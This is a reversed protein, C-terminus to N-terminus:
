EKNPIIKNQIFVLLEENSEKQFNASLQCIFICNQLYISSESFSRRAQKKTLNAVADNSLNSVTKRKLVILDQEMTFESRCKGHYFLQPIENAIMSQALDFIPARNRINASNPLTNWSELTQLRTFPNESKMDLSLEHIICIDKSV